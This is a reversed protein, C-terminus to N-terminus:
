TAVQNFTLNSDAVMKAVEEEITDQKFHTLIDKQRKKPVSPAIPETSPRKLVNAEKQINHLTSFPNIMGSTEKLIKIVARCNKLKCKAKPSDIKTFHKWVFSM